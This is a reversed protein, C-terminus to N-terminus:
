TARTSDNGLFLFHSIELRWFHSELRTVVELRLKTIIELMILLPM